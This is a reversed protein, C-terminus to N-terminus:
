KVETQLLYKALIEIFEILNFFQCIILKIQFNPHVIHTWNAM